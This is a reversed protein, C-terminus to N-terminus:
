VKIIFNSVGYPQLNNHAQDSGTNQNTATTNQNTATTANTSLTSTPAATVHSAGGTQPANAIIPMTHAHPDQIHTHADQLHTHSPMEGTILQHTAAGGALGLVDFNADSTDMGVLVKGKHNPVNFTTAGDGLGYPCFVLTHTGSQSGSTNIATGARANARSTALRFTNANIRIVYYLTNASLGTPLAGTTTLYVADATSLGHATLTFVGPSAITVTFTGVTPAIVAMLTAYTSRSIASGDCWLYGSPLTRGAYPTVFGTAVSGVGVLGGNANIPGTVALSGGVTGNGAITGNGGVSLNGLVTANNPFVGGQDQLAQTSIELYALVSQLTKLYAAISLSARGGAQTFQGGVYLDAGYAMLRYCSGDLGAGLALWAENDSDWAAVRNVGTLDGADTFDGGAYVITNIVTLTRCADNVGNGLASWASGDWKAIRNTSVGGATTFSGGAYLNGGLVTLARCTGGLGTGLASWAGDWKAIRDAAGVGGADTFSGGIYLDTGIVALALCGSNLGTGLASWSSGNWKAIRNASVGGADTFDGGVYLDTGIAALVNGASNLGTGLASWTTGNWKAIYNASVGGANTFIGCAYLDTGIVVMDSCLANLGTGVPSWVGTVIDYSAINAASIGGIKSFSGGVYLKTGIVAFAFVFTVANSPVGISAWFNVTLDNPTNMGGGDSTLSMGGATLSQGDGLVVNGVAQAAQGLNEIQLLRKRVEELAQNLRLVTNPLTNPDAQDLFKGSSDPMVM